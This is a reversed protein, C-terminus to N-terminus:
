GRIKTIKVRSTVTTTVDGTWGFQITDGLICSIQCSVTTQTSGYSGGKVSLITGQTSHIGWCHSNTYAAGPQYVCTVIYMGPEDIVIIGNNTAHGHAFTNGYTKSNDQTYLGMSAGNAAPQTVSASTFEANRYNYPIAVNTINSTTISTANAAVNVQALIISNAPATPAVPTAAPTGAVIIFDVINQTGSYQSDKVYICVLDIRPNTANAATISKTVAADNLAFYLGQRGYNQGSFDGAETGKIWCRGVGIQVAMSPTGTQTVTLDGFQAIGGINPVLSSVAERFVDASHAANQLAFPVTSLAM